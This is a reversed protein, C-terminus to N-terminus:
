NKLALYKAKYKLYKKKWYDDFNLNTFEVEKTTDDLDQYFIRTKDTKFMRFSNTEIDRKKMCDSRNKYETDKMGITNLNSYLTIYENYFETHYNGYIIPFTVEKLDKKIVRTYKSIKISDLDILGTRGVLAIEKQDLENLYGYIKNKENLIFKNLENLIILIFKNQENALNGLVFYQNSQNLLPVGKRPSLLIFYHHREGLAINIKNWCSDPIIKKFINDNVVSTSKLINIEKLLKFKVIFLNILTDPLVNPISRANNFLHLLAQDFQQSFWIFKDTNFVGNPEVDAQLIFSHFYEINTDLKIINNNTTIYSELNNIKNEETM